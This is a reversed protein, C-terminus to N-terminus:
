TSYSGDHGVRECGVPAVARGEFLDGGVGPDRSRRDRPDDVVGRPDAGVDAPLHFGRDDLEAVDGIAGGPAEHRAAATGDGDDDAFRRRAEETVREERSQQAADAGGQRSAIELEHQQHGGRGILRAPSAVVQCGPVDVARQHDAEM